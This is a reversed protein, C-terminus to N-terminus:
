AGAGAAGVGAAGVGAAAATGTAGLADVLRALGDHWDPLAPLGSLRLAMNDLV